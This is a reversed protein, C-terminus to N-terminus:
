LLAANVFRMSMKRSSHAGRARGARGGGADLDARELCGRHQRRFVAHGPALARHFDDGYAILLIYSAIGWTVGVITMLSRKRYAVINVVVRKIIELVM